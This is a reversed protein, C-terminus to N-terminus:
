NKLDITLIVQTGCAKHHEDFLDVIEQKIQHKNLKNYMGFIQKVIAMGKGTSSKSFQAAKKRGIGDDTVLIKVQKNQESIDIGLKGKTEKHMLGHKIANEVYTQIIMKPVQIGLDLTEEMKIEYDFKGKFRTKQIEIYNKVFEIEDKLPRAIKASDQLTSRILKAFKSFYDYVTDPDNKYVMSGIMNIANFAFHPDIQNKITKLQLEIKEREALAKRKQSLLIQRIILFLILLFVVIALFYFWNTKWFPPKIYINLTAEKSSWVDDVNSAKVRFIYNGPDLNTYTASTQNQVYNWNEEFGEMIYAYQNQQPNTFDLSAFSLSFVSERFTLQLDDLYTIKKTLYYSSGSKTIKSPQKEKNESILVENNFIKFGTLVVSPSFNSKQLSDPHFYTLGTLGGFYIIENKDKFYAGQNFENGHIGDQISFSEIIPNFHDVTFNEGKEWCLSLRNIKAVNLKAIGRFTSMWINGQDDEELGFITNSPLGQETTIHHFTLTSGSLDTCNLGGQTGLWLRNNKDELVCWVNNNSISNPNEEDNQFNIFCDTTENYKSLGGKYNGIWTNGAKDGAIALITNSPISTSDDEKHNYVTIKDTKKNLKNLGGGRTGVWINGVDDEHLALIRSNSIQNKENGTPYRKFFDLDKDYYCLGEGYTGIWILGESDEILAWVRNNSLTNLTTKDNRYVSFEAKGKDLRNLGQGDTGVWFTNDRDVLISNVSKESLHLENIKDENLIRFTNQEPKYKSLGEDSGAWLLGSQDKLISWFNINGTKNNLKLQKSIGTIKNYCFLGNQTACWIKNPSVPFLNWIVSLSESGHLVEINRNGTTQLIGNKTGFLLKGDLGKNITWIIINSEDINKSIFEIPTFVETNVDFNVLGKNTGIWIKENDDHYLSLIMRSPLISNNQNFCSFQNLEPNYLNLGDNTGVYINGNGDCALSWITNDSISGQEALNKQFRKSKGTNKNLVNLGGSMTGVWILGDPSICLSTIYNDSLSTSDGPQNYYYTFNYGDYQNLGDQTGIWLFGDEDQVMCNVTSQSLGESSSIVSSIKYDQGRVFSYNFILGSFVILFISHVKFLFRNKGTKSLRKFTEPSVFIIVIISISILEQPTIM